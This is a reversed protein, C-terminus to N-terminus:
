EGPNVENAIITNSPHPRVAGAIYERFVVEAYKGNLPPGNRKHFGAVETVTRRN